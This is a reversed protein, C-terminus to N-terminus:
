IHILSLSLVSSAVAKHMDGFLFYFAPVMIIGGGVGLLGSLFGSSFGILVMFIIKM